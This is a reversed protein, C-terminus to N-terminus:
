NTKYASKVSFNLGFYFLKRIKVISSLINKTLYRSPSSLHYFFLGGHNRDFSWESTDFTVRWTIQKEELKVSDITVSKQLKEREKINPSDANSSQILSEEVVKESVSVSVSDSDDVPMEEMDSNTSDSMMARPQPISELLSPEAVEEAKENLEEELTEDDELEEEALFDSEEGDSVVPKEVVDGSSVSTVDAELSEAKVTTTSYFALGGLVVTSLLLSSVVKQKSM